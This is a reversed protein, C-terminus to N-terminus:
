RAAVRGPAAPKCGRIECRLTYPGAASRRQSGSDGLGPVAVRGGLTDVYAAITRQCGEPQDHIEKEMFHRYNGKEAAAGAAPVFTEAREVKKGSADFVEFSTRTLTCWDGEELYIVRSTFPGVALADSLTVPGYKSPVGFPDLANEFQLIGLEAGDLDALARLIANSGFVLDVRTATWKLAGTQRDHLAYSHRGTPAWTNGMDTLNVFFDNSLVGVPVFMPLGPPKRWRGLSMDMRSDHLPM